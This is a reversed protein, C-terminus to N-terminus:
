DHTPQKIHDRMKFFLISSINELAVSGSANCRAQCHQCTLLHPEFSKGSFYRDGISPLKSSKAFRCRKAFSSSKKSVIRKQINVLFRSSVKELQGNRREPPHTVFRLFDPFIQLLLTSTPTIFQGSIHPANDGRKLGDLRANQVSHLTKKQKLKSRRRTDIKDTGRRPFM